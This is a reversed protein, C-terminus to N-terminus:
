QARESVFVKVLERGKPQRIVERTVEFHFPHVDFWAECDTQSIPTKHLAEGAVNIIQYRKAM